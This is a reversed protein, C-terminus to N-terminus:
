PEAIAAQDIVLRSGTAANFNDIMPQFQTFDVCSGYIASTRRFLAQFRSATIEGFRRQNQFDFKLIAERMQGAILHILGDINSLEGLQSLAQRRQSADLPGSFALHSLSGNLRLADDQAARVREVQQFIISLATFQSREVHIASDSALLAKWSDNGWPRSPTRLVRPMVFDGDGKNISEPVQATWTADFKQLKDALARVQERRCPETALRESTHNLAAVLDVEVADVARRAERAQSADTIAEQAMLTIGVGIVIILVEFSFRKLGKLEGMERFFRVGGELFRKLKL